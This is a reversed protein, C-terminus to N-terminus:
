RALAIATKIAAAEIIDAGSEPNRRPFGEALALIEEDPEVVVVRTGAARLADAERRLQRRARSRVLGRGPRTMPSSILVVELGEGILLDANTASRVAGDVFRQDGIRKPKFMAPVAATAEIADAITVDTRDRGFVVLRGDDIAVSPIWLPPPWGATGDSPFRRLTVTPFVGAPLLGVLAGVGVDGGVRLALGPAAPRLWRWPRRLSGAAERMEAMEAESPRTTVATLIEENSAGALLGAAIAGGASTGVIRDAGAPEHGLARRVGDLVGLHYVWGLPGGAGLVLGFAM